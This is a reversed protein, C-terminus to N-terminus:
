EGATAQPEVFVAHELVYDYAAEERLQDHIPDLSGFQSEYYRRMVDPSVSADLAEKKLQAEIAADDIQLGNVEAIKDLILTLQARKRADPALEERLAARQEEAEEVTKGEQVLHVLRNRVMLDLQGELLTPPIEPSHMELLRDAIEQHHSQRQSAAIREELKSRIEARLAPLDAFDLDKAFEDDVEPVVKDQIEHLTVTFEAQKGAYEERYDEPFTVTIERNEGRTMGEIGSEFDPFLRGAGLEVSFREGSGGEFPEGDIRGQFDIVGIQGQSLAADADGVTSVQANEQRMRELTSDIMEEPVVVDRRTVEVGTVDGLEVEPLVDVQAMYTFPSGEQLDIEELAPPGIAKLSHEELAQPFTEKLLTNGVDERVADGFRKRIVSLPVKGPRFGPIRATRQLARYAKDFHPVTEEAALTVRVQWRCPSVEQVNTEM